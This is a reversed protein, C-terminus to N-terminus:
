KLEIPLFVVEWNSILSLSVYFAYYFDLSSHLYRDMHTPKQTTFFSYCNRFYLLLCSIVAFYVSFLFSVNISYKIFIVILFITNKHFSLFSEYYLSVVFFLHKQIHHGFDYCLLLQVFDFGMVSDLRTKRIGAYSNSKHIWYLYLHYLM